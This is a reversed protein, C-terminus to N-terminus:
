AKYSQLQEMKGVDQWSYDDVRFAMIRENEGALRLYSDVISFSGKETLKGFIDPSIIHIGGFALDITSGKPSRTDIRKNEILSKWGCLLNDEDFIFYRKTQRHNIALTALAHSAMHTQMMKQLDIDSLVDVNHLIFPQDDDFFSGAKKLGGGTDLLTEEHSFEIHVGFNKKANLFEIIQEPFHHLNIIVESVGVAILRKLVIEILPVGGIEILAKPKTNTIPRLRTGLGAALIMAKM